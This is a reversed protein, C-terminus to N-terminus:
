DKEKYVEIGNPFLWRAVIYIIGIVNITTTTIFAILVNDSLRFDILEINFKGIVINLDGIGTLLVVSGIFILWIYTLRYINKAYKQRLTNTEKYDKLTEESRRHALEDQKIQYPDKSPDEKSKERYRSLYDQVSNNKRDLLRAINRDPIDKEDLLSQLKEDLDEKKDM